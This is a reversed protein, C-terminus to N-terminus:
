AGVGVGAHIEELFQTFSKWSRHDARANYAIVDPRGARDAHPDTFAHKTAGYVAVEWDIGAESLGHELADLVERPAMPDEAGTLVLVKAAPNAQSWDTGVTDLGGHFSVVGAVEAGHRLYELASSGGFCYGVAVVATDAVDPHAKLAEHAARIRGIWRERNSVMSGILPGIEDEQSPTTGEGWLDALLVAYGLDAIRRATAKMPESVGFADHILLVGPRPAGAETVLHGICETGDHIYPL